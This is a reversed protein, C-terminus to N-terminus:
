QKNLRKQKKAVERYSCYFIELIITEQFGEIDVHTWGLKGWNNPVPYVNNPYLISYSEQDDLLLKVTFMFTSENYTAVISKGIRYSIKEFHPQVSIGELKMLFEHITEFM